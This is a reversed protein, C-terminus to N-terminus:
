PFPVKFTSTMAEGSVGFTSAYVTGTGFAGTSVIDRTAFSEGLLSPVTVVVTIKTAAGGSTPVATYSVAVAGLLTDPTLLLSKAGVNYYIPVLNGAPTQVVLIPDSDCWGDSALAAPIPLTVVLMVLLSLSLLLNRMPREEHKDRYV